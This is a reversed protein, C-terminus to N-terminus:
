ALERTLEFTIKKSILVAVNIGVLPYRSKVGSLMNAMIIKLHEVDLPGASTVVM